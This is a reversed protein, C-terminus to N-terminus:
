ESRPRTIRWLTTTGGQITWHLTEPAERLHGSVIRMNRWAFSRSGGPGESVDPKGEIEIMAEGLHVRDGDILKNTTVKM